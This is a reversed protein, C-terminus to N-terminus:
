PTRSLGLKNLLRRNAEIQTLAFARYDTSNLYRPALDFREMVERNVPSEFARKLADHLITVVPPDMGKPGGIGYPFSLDIDTAIGEDSLSPVDPARPNRESTASLLQRLQGAEVLPQIRGSSATIDVHGGLVATVAEEGGRYPVHLLRIGRSLGIAEFIMHLVGGAGSSAYSIKSPNASAEAVLQKWTQWRADDRV